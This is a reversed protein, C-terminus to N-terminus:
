HSFGSEIVTNIARSFDRGKLVLVRELTLQIPQIPQGRATPRRLLTRARLVALM